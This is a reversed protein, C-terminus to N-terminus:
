IWNSRGGPGKLMGTKELTERAVSEASSISIGSRFLSTNKKKM